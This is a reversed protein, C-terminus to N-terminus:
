GRGGRNLQGLEALRWCGSAWTAGVARGALVIVVAMLYRQLGRTLLLRTVPAAVFVVMRRQGVLLGLVLPSGLATLDCVMEQFWAPGPLNAPHGLSPLALLIATDIDGTEHELVDGALEIFAWLSGCAALIVALIRPELRNRPAHTLIPKM